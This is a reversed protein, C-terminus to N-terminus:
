YLFHYFRAKSSIRNKISDLLISRLNGNKKLSQIALSSVEEISGLSNIAHFYAELSTYYGVIKERAEQFFESEEPFKHILFLIAKLLDQKHFEQQTQFAMFKAEFEKQSSPTKDAYLRTTQAISIQSPILFDLVLPLTMANIPSTNGYLNIAKGNELLHTSLSKVLSQYQEKIEATQSQSINIWNS